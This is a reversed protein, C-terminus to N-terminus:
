ISFLFDVKILKGGLDLITSDLQYILELKIKLEPQTVDREQGYLGNTSLFAILSSLSIKKM